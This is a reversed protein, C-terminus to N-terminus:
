DLYRQLYAVVAPVDPLRFRAATDGGGVKVTIATDPLAEFADEDTVDDGLYIPTHDPHRAAIEQVATGKHLHAPRLEVVDKGSIVELTDPTAEAWTAVAEAAAEPDAAGRYHVAFTHEKDEVWVGEMSPVATRMADLKERDDSTLRDQVEGHLTGEQAGHLGIAPLDLGPLFADLDRLHRGTVIYVPHTESLHRLLDPVAPHPFAAKPDDVIPALTGDYDLFFLPADTLPLDTPM